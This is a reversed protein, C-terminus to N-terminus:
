PRGGIGLATMRRGRADVLAGLASHFEAAARERVEALGILGERPADHIRREVAELAAARQATAAHLAEIDAQSPLTTTSTM